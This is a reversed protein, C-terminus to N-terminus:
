VLTVALVILIYLTETVGLLEKMNRQLQAGGQAWM